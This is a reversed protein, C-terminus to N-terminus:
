ADIRSPRLATAQHEQDTDYLLFLEIAALFTIALGIGIGFHMARTHAFGLIWPSAILWIGLVLNAWEEWKAFAVIAAVSILIVALSSAWLDIKATTNTLTFLWPSILLIAALALNYMDLASERRWPRM